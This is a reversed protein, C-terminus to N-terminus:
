ALEASEAILSEPRLSGGNYVESNIYVVLNKMVKKLLTNM